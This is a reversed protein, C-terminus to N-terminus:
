YNCGAVRERSQPNMKGGAVGYETSLGTNKESKKNRPAKKYIQDRELQNETLSNIEYGTCLLYDQISNLQRM